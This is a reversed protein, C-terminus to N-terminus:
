KVPVTSWIEYKDGTSPVWQSDSSTATLYIRMETGIKKGCFGTVFSRDSRPPVVQVTGDRRVSLIGGDASLALLDGDLVRLLEVEPLRAWGYRHWRGKDTDAVLIGRSGDGRRYTMWIQGAEDRTATWPEPTGRNAPHFVTAMSLQATEILVRYGWPRDKTWVVVDDADNWIAHVVRDKIEETSVRHYSRGAGAVCLAQREGAELIVARGDPSVFYPRGPCSPSPFDATVPAGASGWLNFAGIEVAESSWGRTVADTWADAKSPAEILEPGAVTEAFVEGNPTCVIGGRTESLQPPYGGSFFIMATYTRFLLHALETTGVLMLANSM